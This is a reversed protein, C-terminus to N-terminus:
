VLQKNRNFYLESPIKYDLGQHVRKENYFVIYKGIEERAERPTRYEKLYVEEYKLSRWFREIFINDIARGKGDMSIKVNERKLLGMYELSTFQSGQDSNFIEPHAKGFAREVATLVFDVALSQDLEWEIIYRSYWDIIATLYLWSKELPIYTIDIGWVYDPHDINLNQLLYPVIRKQHERKSLNPRPHIAEIGMARMHGQVAKRNVAFGERQLVATIKRSGYFPSETYIRDIRHKLRVEDPSLPLPSYYLSSRSLGLLEAQTSISIQSNEWEVM